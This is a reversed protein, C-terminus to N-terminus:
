IKDVVDDIMVLVQTDGVQICDGVGTIFSVQFIDLCIGIIVKNFAINTVLFQDPFYKYLVIDIRDNVEGSFGM